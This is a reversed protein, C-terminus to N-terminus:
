VNGYSRMLGLLPAKSGLVGALMPITLQKALAAEFLTFSRAIGGTVLLADAGFASALPALFMGLDAGFEALISHSAPDHAAAELDDVAIGAHDFRTLLGRASFVEDAPTGRFLLPYVWGHPPVSDGDRIAVGDAIFASGIGTGLTVGMIRRYPQGAGDCAEGLIAAEADNVFILPWEEQGTLTRLWQTLHQRLNLGFLAEYKALGTIRSVGAAYDFPGPFGLALAPPVGAPLQHWHRVIIATFINLVTDADAGSDIPTTTPEGVLGRDPLVVGSKISSGGVDLAIIAQEVM